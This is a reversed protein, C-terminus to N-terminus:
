SVSMEEAVQERRTLGKLQDIVEEMSPPLEKKHKHLFPM